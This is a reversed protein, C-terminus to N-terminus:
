CYCCFCFPTLLHCCYVPSSWLFYSWSGSLWLATIVWRAGSMRCHSTLHAKLLIVICFALPSSLIEASSNWIRFSTTTLTSCENWCIQFVWSHGCSQYLDTKMGIRFFTWVVSCNRVNWMSAFYHEFDKLSPKLLINVLFKWIYLNTTSFTSSGSILNGVDTPDYFFLIGSFYRSGSWQSHVSFGKLTHIM